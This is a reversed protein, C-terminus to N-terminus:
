LASKTFNGFIVELARIVVDIDQKTTDLVPRFRITRTGCSILLIGREYAERKVKSCDDPTPVDFACMLGAIIM